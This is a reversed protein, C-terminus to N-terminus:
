FIRIEEIKSGEKFDALSLDIMDSTIEPMNILDHSNLVFQVGDLEEVEIVCRETVYTYWVKHDPYVELFEEVTSNVGIGRDTQYFDSHVLIEDIAREEVPIDENEQMHLDLLDEITNYVTHLEIEYEEGEEMYTKTAKRSKYGEPLTPLPHGLTFMGASGPVIIDSDEVAEEEADSESVEESSTDNTSEESESGEEGGCSIMSCVVFLAFIRRM